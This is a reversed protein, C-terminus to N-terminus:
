MPELLFSLGYDFSPPCGSLLDGETGSFYRGSHNSGMDMDSEISPPQFSWSVDLAQPCALSPEYNEARIREMDTVELYEENAHSTDTSNISQVEPKLHKLIKSAAADFADRRGRFSPFHEVMGWLVSSCAHILSELDAFPIHARVQSSQVYAFMLGIGASSVNEVAQWYITLSHDRFFLRYLEIMGRVANTMIILQSDSPSPISQSPRYLYFLATHYSVALREIASKEHNSQWQDFQLTLYQHSPKEYLVTQIESEASIAGDSLSLPMSLMMSMNRDMAYAVWFARRMSDLTFFDVQDRLADQHLGLEVAVRLGSGVVRWASWITPHYYSYQGLLLLAQVGKLGDPLGAEHLSHIALRHYQDALWIPIRSEQKHISIIAIAFVELVFFVAIRSETTTHTEKLKIIRPMSYLFQLTEQFSCEHLLPMGISSLRFYIGALHQAAPETPLSVPSTDLDGVLATPTLLDISNQLPRDNHTKTATLTSNIVHELFIKSYPPEPAPKGQTMRLFDMSCSSADSVVGSSLHEGPLASALNEDSIQSGATPFGGPTLEVAPVTLSSNHDHIDVDQACLKSELYAIRKELSHVYSFYAFPLKQDCRKKRQHCRICATTSNRGSGRPRKERSSPNPKEPSLVM